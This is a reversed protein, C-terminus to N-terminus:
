ALRRLYALWDKTFARVSTHLVSAFAQATAAEVEADTASPHQTRSPRGPTM